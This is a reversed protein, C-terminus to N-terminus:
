SPIRRANKAYLLIQDVSSKSPELISDDMNSMLGIMESFFSFISDNKDLSKMYTEAQIPSSENYVFNITDIQTSNKKM